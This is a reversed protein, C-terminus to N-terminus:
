GALSGGRVCRLLARVVRAEVTRASPGAAAGGGDLAWERVGILGETENHAGHMIEALRPNEELLQNLLRRARVNIAIRDLQALTTM